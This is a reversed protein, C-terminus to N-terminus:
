KTGEIACKTAQEIALTSTILGGVEVECRRAWVLAGDEVVRLRIQVVVTRRIGVGMSSGLFVRMNLLADASLERLIETQENPTADEFMSGHQEVTTTTAYTSRVEAEHRTATVANVKESDIVTLGRFELAARIAQDAGKLANEPCKGPLYEPEVNQQQALEARVLGGCTAPLAVVRKITRHAAPGSNTRLRPAALEVSMCSATALLLIPLLARM